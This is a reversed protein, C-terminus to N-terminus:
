RTVRQAFAGQYTAGLRAAARDARARTKYSGRFVM